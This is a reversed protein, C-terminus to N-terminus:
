HGRFSYRGYPKICNVTFVNWYRISLSTSGQVPTRLDTPCPGRTTGCRADGFMQLLTKMCPSPSPGGHMNPNIRWCRRIYQNSHDKCLIMARQIRSGRHRLSWPNRLLTSPAEPQQWQNAPLVAAGVSVSILPM